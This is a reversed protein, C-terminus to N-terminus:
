KVIHLTVHCYFTYYHLSFQFKYLVMLFGDSSSFCESVDHSNAPFHCQKETPHYLKLNNACPSVLPGFVLVFQQFLNNHLDTM